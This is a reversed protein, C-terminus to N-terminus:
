FSCLTWVISSWIVRQETVYTVGGKKLFNFGQVRWDHLVHYIQL